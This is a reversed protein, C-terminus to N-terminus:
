VLNYQWQLQKDRWMNTFSVDASVTVVITIILVMCRATEVGVEKKM